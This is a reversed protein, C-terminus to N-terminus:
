WGRTANMLSLESRWVESWPGHEYGKMIPLGETFHLLKPKELHNPDYDTGVLHNWELPLEGIEEDKLWCFAHLDRGPLENVMELTLRAHAEHRLNWLVVSSWNKRLYVTQQQGDMKVKEIPEHKRKVVQVAFQDDALALLEGPDALFLMDSFDCFLAWQKTGLWPVLFRSNAFTTAMPAQSIPCWLQGGREEHPRRYLGAFRLPNEILPMFRIPKLTRRMASFACVAYGIAERPEYGAVIELM